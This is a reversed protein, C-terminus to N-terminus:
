SPGEGGYRRAIELWRSLGVAQEYETYAYLDGEIAATTGQVKLATAVREVAKMAAFLLLHWYVVMKVGTRKWEEVSFNPQVTTHERDAACAVIPAKVAGTIRRYEDATYFDGLMGLDAGSDVYAQLRNIVDRIGLAKADTRAIILFEKSKRADAAARVKKAFAERAIVQKGALVGCRKPFTQDEIHIASVGAAEFLSVTRWLNTVGGFGTDADCVVPVQVAQVVVAARRAIEASTTLGLDPCGLDSAEHGLGTLYCLPYGAQEVIQASVVDYAGPAIIIEERELIDRL